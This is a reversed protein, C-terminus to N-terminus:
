IAGLPKEGPRLHALQETLLRLGRSSRRKVAVASVGVVQAAEAQTM